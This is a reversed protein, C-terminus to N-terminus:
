PLPPYISTVWHNCTQNETGRGLHGQPSVSCQSSGRSVKFASSMWAYLILCIYVNDDNTVYVWFEYHCLPETRQLVSNCYAKFFNNFIICNIITMCYIWEIRMFCISKRKKCFLCHQFCEFLTVFLYALKNNSPTTINLCVRLIILDYYKLSFCVVM